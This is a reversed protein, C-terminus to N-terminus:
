SVFVHYTQPISIKMLPKSRTTRNTFPYSDIVYQRYYKLNILNKTKILGLLNLEKNKIGRGRDGQYRLQVISVLGILMM